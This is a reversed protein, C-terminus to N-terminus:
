SQALQCCAGVPTFRVNNRAFKEIRQSAARHTNKRRDARLVHDKEVAGNGVVQAIAVHVLGPLRVAVCPGRAFPLSCTQPSRAQASAHSLPKAKPSPGGLISSRPVRVRATCYSKSLHYVTQSAQHGNLLDGWGHSEQIPQGVM